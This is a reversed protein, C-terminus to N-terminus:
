SLKKEIRCLERDFGQDRERKGEVRRFAASVATYHRKGFIAAIENLSLDTKKRTLYMAVQTGPYIPHELRTIREASVGYFSAVKEVIVGAETKRHIERLAPVEDEGRLGRVRDRVEEWFTEGGLAIGGMVAKLPDGIERRLGEEVFQRYKHLGKVPSKDMQGLIDERRLWEPCPGSSLYSPYSSWRYAEPRKVMGARVPNLHIYRSLELLYLDKEVVISRYRGQFLHGVRDHRRNFYNTYATNLDHLATSLNARPTEVLLHYHNTMLVYAHIVVGYREYIREFRGVFRLFDREIRFIPRKENGRATIHYFGGEWEIRLPRSM